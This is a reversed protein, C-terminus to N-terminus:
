SILTKSIDEFCSGHLFKGSAWGAIEPESGPMFESCGFSGRVSLDSVRLARLCVVSLSLVLGLLPAYTWCRTQPSVWHVVCTSLSSNFVSHGLSDNHFFFHICKGKAYILLSMIKLSSKAHVKFLCSKCFWQKTRKVSRWAVPLIQLHPFDGAASAHLSGGRKRTGWRPRGCRFM